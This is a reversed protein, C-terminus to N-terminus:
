RTRLTARELLRRAWLDAKSERPSMKTDRPRHNPIGLVAAFAKEDAIPIRRYGVKSRWGPPIGGAKAGAMPCLQSHQRFSMERLVAGGADTHFSCTRMRPLKRPQERIGSAAAHRNSARM